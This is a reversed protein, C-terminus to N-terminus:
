GYTLGFQNSKHSVQPQPTFQEVSPPRDRLIFLVHGMLTTNNEWVKELSLPVTDSFVFDLTKMLIMVTLRFFRLLISAITLLISVMMILAFNPVLM